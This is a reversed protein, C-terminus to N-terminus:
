NGHIVINVSARDVATGSDNSALIRVSNVTASDRTGATNKESINTSAASDTSATGSVTYNTDPMAATFNITYDGTNNDTISSVNFSDRIAVTGTGNFNVWAKVVRKDVNDAETASDSLKGFTVSLDKPFSDAVEFRDGALDYRITVRENAPLRGASIATGLEDTINKVGLGSINVTSAGTNVNGPKFVASMGDFYAIPARKSGVTSLVYADAAGSDAYYDGGAAYIAMAKSQQFLDAGSLTQGTDTITNEIEDPIQNFEAATLSDGTSKTPINQM